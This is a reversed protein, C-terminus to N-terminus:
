GEVKWDMEIETGYTPDLYDGTERRKAILALTEDIERRARDTVSKHLTFVEVDYPASTQVCLFPMTFDSYGSKVAADVYWAAQWDYGYDRFSYKISRWDSSTTKVDYWIDKTRGDARAKRKHGNDDRWFVSTQTSITSEVLERARRHEMIADVMRSLQEYTDKGIPHFGSTAVRGRWETYKDGRKSGDAALVEKPAVAFHRELSRKEVTLGFAVDFWTGLETAKNGGFLSVGSELARQHRGGFKGFCRKAWSRSIHKKEKQYEENVMKEDLYCYTESENSM